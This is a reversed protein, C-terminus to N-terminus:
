VLYTLNLLIGDTYLHDLKVGAGLSQGEARSLESKGWDAFEYGLGIQWNSSYVYQIGVGLSYTLATKTSSGFGPVPLAEYITPASKFDYARNLGVGLGASVWPLFSWELPALVKTKFAIHLHQIKYSYTYNNFQPYGGEWIVGNLKANTTAALAVGFNSQFPVNFLPQVGFFLEAQGLVQSIEEDVINQEDRAAVFTKNISPTLIINQTKGGKQSIPGVSFSAVYNFPLLSSEGMSGALAPQLSVGTWLAFAIASKNIRQRM